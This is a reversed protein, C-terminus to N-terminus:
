REELIQKMEQETPKREEGCDNCQMRTFEKPWSRTPKWKHDAGNLCDAKSAEHEIHFCITYAFNKECKPCEQQFIEDEKYGYGDDHCIEVDAGCYPCECDSV